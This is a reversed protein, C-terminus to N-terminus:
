TGSTDSTALYNELSAEGAAPFLTQTRVFLRPDGIDVVLEGVAAAGSEYTEMHNSGFIQTCLKARCPSPKLVYRDLMRAVDLLTVHQLQHAIDHLRSFWYTRNSIATWYRSTEEGLNRDKQLLSTRVSHVNSAFDEATMNVLKGRFEEFFLDIRDNLYTPDYSDSQILLLLGKIADANTKVQSHVIYGLQEETRLQNYAPERVLHHLVALTANTKVDVPGVQYYVVVCSNTEQPNFGPQRYVWEKSDSSPLQAVRTVPLSFPPQPPLSTTFIDALAISEEATVNGHVLIELQYRRYITTAHHALDEVTIESLAQIRDLIAYQPTELCLDTFYSGQSYPPSVLFSHLATELKDRIRDFLDNSIVTAATSTNYTTAITDVIRQLLIPAKHNYGAVQIEIGARSPTFACHLGAISAAYSYSNCLETIIECYMATLVSSVVSDTHAATTRVICMINVKPMAFRDDVKYWIRCTDTDRLCSCGALRRKGLDDGNTATETEGEKSTASSGEGFNKRQLEAPVVLDFKTAIMDNEEPLKLLQSLELAASEPLEGQNEDSADLPIMMQASGSVDTWKSLREPEIQIQSYITGYHVDVQQKPLFPNNTDTEQNTHPSGEEDAKDSDPADPNYEFSKSGVLVLMNQPQLAALYEQLLATDYESDTPLYIKHPAALYQSPDAAYAIMNTVLNSCTDAPAGHGKFKFQLDGITKIEQVFPWVTAAATSSLMQLYYYVMQIILDVNSLGLDTLEIQITFISFAATSKSVDDASLEQALQLERLAFLLSGPGEHGLLHSVIRNPKLRWMHESQIERCKWQIELTVEKDSVPVWHFLQPGVFPLPAMTAPENNTTPAAPIQGFSAVTWEQLVDLSQAGLVVCKMNAAHYFKQYFDVVGARLQALRQTKRESKTLTNNSADQSDQNVLDDPLLSQLSGSGFGGYPHPTAQDSGAAAFITRSLHMTRWADSQKNKAHESDVADIEKQLSSELLLPHSLCAACRSLAGELQAAQVDMYFVTMELDTYANSHGGHQSLYSDYENETPYQQSGLFVMHETLHAIGNLQGDHLQGVQVACAAAGQDATPDAILLCPLGNPLTVVRYERRSSSEIKDGDPVDVVINDITAM